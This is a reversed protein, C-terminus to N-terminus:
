AAELLESLALRVLAAASTQSRDAMGFLQEKQEPSIVIFLRESFNQRKRYSNARAM